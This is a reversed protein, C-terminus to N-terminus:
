EDLSMFLRVLLVLCVPIFLVPVIFFLLNGVNSLRCLGESAPNADYTQNAVRVSPGCDLGHLQRNSGGRRGASWRHPSLRLLAQRM